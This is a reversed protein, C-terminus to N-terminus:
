KKTPPRITILKNDCNQILLTTDKLDGTYAPGSFKLTYTSGGLLSQCQMEDHNLNLTTHTQQINIIILTDRKNSICITGNGDCPQSESSKKCSSVIIVAIIILLNIFLLNKKM